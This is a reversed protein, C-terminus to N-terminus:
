GAPFFLMRCTVPASTCNRPDSFLIRPDEVGFREYPEYYPDDSPTIWPQADVTFRYGDESRALTLLSHGKLDEIRLLMLYQNQCKCAAANFVANCPYAVDDSSIIPNKEYRKFPYYEKM